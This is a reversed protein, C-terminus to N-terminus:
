LELEAKAKTEQANVSATPGSVKCQSETVAPVRLILLALHSTERYIELLDM